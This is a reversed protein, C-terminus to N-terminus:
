FLDKSEEGYVSLEQSLKDALKQLEIRHEYMLDYAMKLRLTTSTCLVATAYDRPSIVGQLAKWAVYSQVEYEWEEKRQHEESYFPRIQVMTEQTMAALPSFAGFYSLGFNELESLTKGNRLTIQNALNQTLDQDHDQQLCNIQSPSSDGCTDIGENQDFYSNALTCEESKAEYLAARASTLRVQAAKIGNVLKRRTEHMWSIQNSLQSLKNITAVPSGYAMSDHTQQTLNHEDHLLTFEAMIIPAGYSYNESDQETDTQDEELDDPDQYEAIIKNGISTSSGIASPVRNYYGTIVARGIGYLRLTCNDPYSDQSINCEQLDQTVGLVAAITAYRGKRKDDGPVPVSINTTAEDIFAVIPSSHVINDKGLIKHILVAEHITQWQLPTPDKISYYDGVLLPSQMLFPGMVPVSPRKTQRVLLPDLIPRQEAQSSYKETYQRTIEHKQTSQSLSAFLEEDAIYEEPDSLMRLLCNRKKDVAFAPM